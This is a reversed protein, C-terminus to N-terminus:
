RGATLQVKRARRLAEDLSCAYVVAHVLRGARVAPRWGTARERAASLQAEVHRRTQEAEVLDHRAAASLAREVVLARRLELEGVRRLRLLVDRSGRDAM